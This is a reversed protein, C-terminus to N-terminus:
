TVNGLVTGCWIQPYAWLTESHCGDPCPRYEVRRPALSELKRPLREARPCNGDAGDDDVFASRYDGTSSVSDELCSSRRALECARSERVGLYIRQRLQRWRLAMVPGREVGRDLRAHQANARSGQGGDASDHERCLIDVAAAASQEFDLERYWTM